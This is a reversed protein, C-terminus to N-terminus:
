KRGEYDEALWKAVAIASTPKAKITNAADLIFFSPSAFVYYNKVNEGNWGKYDCVSTFTYDKIYNLYAEKDTDLSIFVIQADYREKFITTYESLQPMENTCAECWSAGFVLVRYKGPLDALTNYKSGADFLIEAAKNGVAMKKYQELIPLTKSNIVCKTDDLLLLALHKACAILGYKEYEKILYESYHNLAKTNQQSSKKLVDSFTNLRAVILSEEQLKLMEKLYLEFFDKTLGSHYLTAASFDLALFAAECAKLEDATKNEKQFEQLLKRYALYSSAYSKNPLTKIYNEILASQVVQEEELTKVFTKKADTKAYLNLLYNIGALKKQSESNISYAQQFWANEKSKSFQIANLEKGQFSFSEKNLLLVLSTEEKIQFLAGGSYNQPYTLVFTGSADTSTQSFLTDKTGVFGMLRVEKNKANILQGDIKITSQASLNLITFYFLCTLIKM